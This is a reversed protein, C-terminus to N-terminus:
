KRGAVSLQLDHLATGVEKFHTVDETKHEHLDKKIDSVATVLTEHRVRNTEGRETIVTEIRVISELATDSKKDLAAWGARVAFLLPVLIGGIIAVYDAPKM